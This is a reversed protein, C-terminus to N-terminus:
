NSCRASRRETHGSTAQHRCRCLSQGSTGTPRLHAWQLNPQGREDFALPAHCEECQNGRAARLTEMKKKFWDNSQYGITM